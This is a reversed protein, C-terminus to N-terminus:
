LSEPDTWEPKQIEEHIQDLPYGEGQIGAPREGYWSVIAFTGDISRRCSIPNDQRLLTFDLNILSSAPVIAFTEFEM